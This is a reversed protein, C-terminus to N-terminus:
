LSIWNNTAETLCKKFSNMLSSFSVSSDTILKHRFIFGAKAPSTFCFWLNQKSKRRYGTSTTVNFLCECPTESSRPKDWNPVALSHHIGQRWLFHHYCRHEYKNPTTWCFGDCTEVVVREDLYLCYGYNEPNERPPPARHDPHWSSRSCVTWRVLHMVEQKCHLIILTM